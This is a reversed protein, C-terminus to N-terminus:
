PSALSTDAELQNKFFGRVDCPLHYLAITDYYICDNDFNGVSTNRDQTDDTTSLVLRSDVKGGEKKRKEEKEEEEEVEWRREKEKGGWRELGTRADPM